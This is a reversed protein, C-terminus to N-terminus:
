LVNDNPSTKNRKSHTDISRASIYSICRVNFAKFPIRYCYLAKPLSSTVNVDNSFADTRPYERRCVIAVMIKLLRDRVSNHELFKNARELPRRPPGGLWFTHRNNQPYCRPPARTSESEDAAPNRAARWRWRAVGVHVFLTSSSFRRHLEVKGKETPIYGFIAICQTHMCPYFFLWTPPSGSGIQHLRTEGIRMGSKPFTVVRERCVM